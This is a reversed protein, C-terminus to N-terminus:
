SLQYLWLVIPLNLQIVTSYVVAKRFESQNYKTHCPIFSSIERAVMYYGRYASGLSEWILRIVSM